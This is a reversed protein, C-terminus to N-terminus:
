SKALLKLLCILVTYLDKLYTQGPKNNGGIKRLIRGNLLLSFNTTQHLLTSFFAYKIDLVSFWKTDGSIQALLTYPVALLPHIPFV